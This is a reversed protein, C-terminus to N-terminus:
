IPNYQIAYVSFLRDVIGSISPGIDHGTSDTPHPSNGVRQQWFETASQQVPTDLSSLYQTVNV